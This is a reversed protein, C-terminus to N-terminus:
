GDNYLDAQTDFALNHWITLEGSEFSQGRISNVASFFASRCSPDHLEIVITRVIRIWDLDNSSFLDFESGEIDIKMIDITTLSHETILDSVTIGETEAQSGWEAALVQHAWEGGDRYTRRRIQLPARRPWLAKRLLIAREGYPGLNERLLRFNDADPEIALIKAKSYRNLFFISATGINAGADIITFVNPLRGVCDYQEDILVQQIVLKDTTGHRFRVDHPYGHIKLKRTFEPLYSKLRRRSAYWKVMGYLGLKEFLKWTRNKM